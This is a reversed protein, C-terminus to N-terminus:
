SAVLTSRVQARVRLPSTKQQPSSAYEEADIDSALRGGGVLVLGATTM